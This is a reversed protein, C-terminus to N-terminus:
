VRAAARTRDLVLIVDFHHPVRTIARKKRGPHGLVRRRARPRAVPGGLVDQQVMAAQVQDTGPDCSVFAGLDLVLCIVALLIVGLARM